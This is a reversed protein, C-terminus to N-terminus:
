LHKLPQVINQTSSTKNEIIFIILSCKFHIDLTMLILRYGPDCVYCSMDEKEERQDFFDISYM